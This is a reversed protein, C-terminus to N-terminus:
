KACSRTKHSCMKTKVSKDGTQQKLCTEQSKNLKFYFKNSTKKDTQKKIELREKQIDLQLQDMRKQQELKKEEM